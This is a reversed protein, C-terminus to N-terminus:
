TTLTAQPTLLAPGLVNICYRHHNATSNTQGVVTAGPNRQQWLMGVYSGLVGPGVVLLDKSHSPPQEGTEASSSCQMYQRRTNAKQRSRNSACHCHKRESHTPFQHRFGKAGFSWSGLKVSRDSLLCPPLLHFQCRLLGTM